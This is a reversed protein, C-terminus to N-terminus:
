IVPTTAPQTAKTTAPQTVPIQKEFAFFQDLERDVKINVDVILHIPKEGGQVSLQACGSVMLLLPVTASILALISKVPKKM